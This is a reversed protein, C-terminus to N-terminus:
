NIIVVDNTYENVNAIITHAYNFYNHNNNFTYCVNGGRM